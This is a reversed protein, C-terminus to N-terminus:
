GTVRYLWITAPHQKVVYGMVPSTKAAPLAHMTPLSSAHCNICIFGDVLDPCRSASEKALTDDQICDVQREDDVDIFIIDDAAAHADGRPSGAPAEDAAAERTLALEQM